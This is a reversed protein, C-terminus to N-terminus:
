TDRSRRGPRPTPLWAGTAGRGLRTTRPRWRSSTSRALTPTRSPTHREMQCSWRCGFWWPTPRPPLSPPGQLDPSHPAGLLRSFVRPLLALTFVGRSPGLVDRPSPPAVSFVELPSYLCGLSSVGAGLTCLCDQPLDGGQQWGPRECAQGRDRSSAVRPQRSLPNTHLQGGGGGHLLQKAPSSCVCVQLLAARARTEAGEM